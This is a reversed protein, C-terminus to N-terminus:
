GQTEVGPSTSDAVFKLAGLAVELEVGEQGVPVLPEGDGFLTLERDLLAVRARRTRLIEVAPHTVHTGRYVRPFVALLVPKSVEKVIVLEFLGDDIVAAPAIRMGGGFTPCTCCSIIVVKGEFVGEDHELRVTPPTFRSLTRIVAYPYVLPGKVRKVEENAFRTVESDFGVGCYVATYLDSGGPVHVRGLDMARIPGTLAREVAAEPDRPIDLARAVDNGSGLSILGLATDSGALGQVVHHVTGDGGVVVLREAGEEVARRAKRRLDEGSESVWLEAGAGAALARLREM